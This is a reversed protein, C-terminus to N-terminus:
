WDEIQYNKLLKGVLVQRKELCEFIPYLIRAAGDVSDLPPIYGIEFQRARLKENAGTSIWGVDVSNMLIGDASYEKAATLTMMNLAAKTMNTHPHDSTKNTYSFQGESSSVNVIFKHDFGSKRFLPTLSQILLFPSIQNILSVELLEVPPIDELGSNWSNKTRRDVPQGFRNLEIHEMNFSAGILKNNALSKNGILQRGTAAKNGIIKQERSVIPAYHEDTYKITQAANNILIDLAGFRESYFSTFQEVDKIMRLDLGYVLLNQSWTEYDEENEFNELALGPFRTTVTLNAGARLLKLATAYGVKVRGGTLIVNRGKLDVTRWRQELNTSACDPCLRHYFSHVNHYPTNCSYCKKPVEVHTYYHESDRQENGFFTTGESANKALVSDLTVDVTRKKREKSQEKKAKKAVKTLLTSFLMNEPNEFPSDKLKNLVKLCADWEEQTFGYQEKFSSM